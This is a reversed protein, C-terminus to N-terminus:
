GAVVVVKFQEEEIWIVDQHALLLEAGPVVVKQGSQATVSGLDVYQTHVGDVLLMGSAADDQWPHAPFKGDWCGAYLVALPRPMVDLLMRAFAVFRLRDPEAGPQQMCAPLAAGTPPAGAADMSRTPCSAALSGVSASAAASARWRHERCFFSEVITASYRM